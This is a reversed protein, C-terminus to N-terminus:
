GKRLAAVINPMRTRAERVFQLPNRFRYDPFRWLRVAFEVVFMGGILLYTGTNSFWVYSPPSVPWPPALGALELLGGPSLNAVLLANATAVLALLLTWAWTVRRAYTIVEPAPVQPAHFGRALREILPTRGPLLTRGFTFSILASIAVPTLMLPVPPAGRATLVVIFIGPVAALIRWAIRHPGRISALVLLLLLAVATAAVMPSHRLFALHVAVLYGLSLGIVLWTRVGASM